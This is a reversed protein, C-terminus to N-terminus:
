APSGLHMRVGFKMLPDIFDRNNLREYDVANQLDGWGQVIRIDVAIRGIRAAFALVAEFQSGGGFFRSGISLGLRLADRDNAFGRYLSAGTEFLAFGGGFTEFGASGEAHLRLRLLNNTRNYQLGLTGVGEFGHRVGNGDAVNATMRALGSGLFENILLHMLYQHSTANLPNSWNESDLSLWGLEGRYYLPRIAHINDVAVRLLNRNAFFQQVFLRGLEDYWWWSGPYEPPVVDAFLTTSADLSLTTGDRLTTNVQLQLAYTLGLDDTYMPRFILDILGFFINDNTMAVAVDVGGPIYDVNSGPLSASSAAGGVWAFACVFLAV